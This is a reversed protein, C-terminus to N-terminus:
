FIYFGPTLDLEASLHQQLKVTSRKLNAKKLMRGVICEDFDVLIFLQILEMKQRLTLNNWGRSIAKAVSEFANQDTPSLNNKYNKIKPPKQENISGRVKTKKLRYRVCSEVSVINCQDVGITKIRRRLGDTFLQSVDEDYAYFAMRRIAETSFLTPTLEIETDNDRDINAVEDAVTQSDDPQSSVAMFFEEKVIRDVLNKEDVTLLKRYFTDLSKRYLKLLCIGLEQMEHDSWTKGVVSDTVTDIRKTCKIAMLDDKEKQTIAIVSSCLRVMSWQYSVLPLLRKKTFDVNMVEPSMGGYVSVCNVINRKRAVKQVKAASKSWCGHIHLVDPSLQSLTSNIDDNMVLVRVGLSALQQCFEDPQVVSVALTAEMQKATAVILRLAIQTAGSTQPDYMYHLIRMM